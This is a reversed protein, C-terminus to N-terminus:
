LYHDGYLEMRVFVETGDYYLTVGTSGRSKEKGVLVRIAQSREPISDSYNPILAM